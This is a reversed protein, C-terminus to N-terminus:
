LLSGLNNKCVRKFTYLPSGLLVIIWRPSSPRCGSHKGGITSLNHCIRFWQLLNPVVWIDWSWLFWANHNIKGSPDVWSIFSEIEVENITSLASTSINWIHAGSKISTMRYNEKCKYSSCLNTMLTFSLKRGLFTISRNDTPRFLPTCRRYPYMNKPVHNQHRM